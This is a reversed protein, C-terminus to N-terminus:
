VGSAPRQLVRSSKQGKAWFDKLMKAMASVNSFDDPKVMFSSAGLQYAENVDKLESSLTLVVTTIGGLDPRTQLWRLVEFGGIKPMKLDLLILNPLPFRKRDAYVGQGSLYQMAEEGNNVVFVRDSLKAENFARLIVMVDAVQDEVVLIVADSPMGGGGTTQNDLKASM